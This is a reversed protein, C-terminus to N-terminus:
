LVEILAEVTKLHVKPHVLYASIVLGLKIIFSLFKDDM